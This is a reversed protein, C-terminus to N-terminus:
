LKTNTGTVPRSPLALDLYRIKQREDPSLTALVRDAVALKLAVDRANGLRLEVHSRLM